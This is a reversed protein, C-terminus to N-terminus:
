SPGPGPSRPPAPPQSHMRCGLVWAHGPPPPPAPPTAWAIGGAAACHPPKNRFRACLEVEKVLSGESRYRTIRPMECSMIKIAVRQGQWVAEHVKGFGGVGILRGLHQKVEADFDIYLDVESLCHPDLNASCERYIAADFHAAQNGGPMMSMALHADGPYRDGPLQRLDGDWGAPEQNMAGRDGGQSQGRGTWRRIGGFLGFASDHNRGPSVRDVSDPPSYGCLFSLLSSRTEHDDHYALLAAETGGDRPTYGRSVRGAVGNARAGRDRRASGAPGAVPHRAARRVGPISARTDAATGLLRYARGGRVIWRSCNVASAGIWALTDSCPDSKNHCWYVSVSMNLAAGAIVGKSPKSRGGGPEPPPVSDSVAPSLPGLAVAPLNAIQIKAGRLEQSSVYNDRWREQWDTPVSSVFPTGPVTPPDSQCCYTVNISCVVTGPPPLPQSAGARPPSGWALLGAVYAPLRPNPLPSRPVVKSNQQVEVDPANRRPTDLYSYDLNVDLSSMYRQTEISVIAQLVRLTPVNVTALLAAVLSSNDPPTGAPLLLGSGAKFTLEMVYSAGTVGPLGPKFTAVLADCGLTLEKSVDACSMKFKDAVSSGGEGGGSSGSSSTNGLTVSSPVPDQTDDQPAAFWYQLMIDDLSITSNSGKNTVSFFFQSFFQAFLGQATGQATQYEVPMYQVQLIPGKHAIFSLALPPLASSSSSSSSSSSTTIPALQPLTSNSFIALGQPGSSIPQPQLALAALVNVAGLNLQQSFHAPVACFHRLISAKAHKTHEKNDTSPRYGANGPSDVTDKDRAHLLKCMGGPVKPCEDTGPPRQVGCIEELVLTVDHHLRQQQCDNAVKEQLM